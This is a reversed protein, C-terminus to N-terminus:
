KGKLPEIGSAPVSEDINTDKPVTVIPASPGAVPQPAGVTFRESMNVSKAATLRGLVQPTFNQSVSEALFKRFQPALARQSGVPPKWKSKDNTEFSFENVGIRYTVSAKDPNIRGQGIEGNNLLWIEQWSNSFIENNSVRFRGHDGGVVPSIEQGNGSVFVIDQDGVNFLPIGSIILTNGQEDPGGRFRLTILRGEASRGKYNKEIEYTVFTHPMAVQDDSEVDSSRYEVDVVKGEFILDAKLVLDSPAIHDSHSAQIDMMVLALVISLIATLILKRKM